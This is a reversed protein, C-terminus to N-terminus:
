EKDNTAQQNALSKGIEAAAMTIVRRMTPLRTDEFAVFLWQENASVSKQGHRDKHSIEIKLAAALDFADDNTVLSNWTHGSELWFNLRHYEGKLGRAKAALELLEQDTRSM